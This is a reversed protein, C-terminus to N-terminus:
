FLQKRASAQIRVEVNHDDYDVTKQVEDLYDWNDMKNISEQAASSGVNDQFCCFNYFCNGVIRWIKFKVATGVGEGAGSIISVSGNLFM